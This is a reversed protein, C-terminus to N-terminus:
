LYKMLFVGFYIFTIGQTKMRQTIVDRYRKLSCYPIHSFLISSFKSIKIKFKIICIEKILKILKIQICVNKSPNSPLFKFPLFPFQLADETYQGHCNYFIDSKTSKYVSLAATQAKM